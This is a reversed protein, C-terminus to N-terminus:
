PVGKTIHVFLSINIMIYRDCSLPNVILKIKTFICVIAMYKIVNLM